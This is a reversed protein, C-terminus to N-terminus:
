EHMLSVGHRFAAELVTEDEAAEMEIGVPEFRVTHAVKEAM